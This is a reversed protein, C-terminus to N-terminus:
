FSLRQRRLYKHRKCLPTGEGRFKGHNERRCVQSLGNVTDELASLRRRILELVVFFGACIVLVLFVIVVKQFTPVLSNRKEKGTKHGEM